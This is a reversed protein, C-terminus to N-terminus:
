PTLSGPSVLNAKVSPAGREKWHPHPWSQLFVPGPCLTGTDVPHPRLHDWTITVPSRPHQCFLLAWAQSDPLPVLPTSWLGSFQASAWDGGRHPQCVYCSGNPGARRGPHLNWAGWEAAKGNSRAETLRKHASSSPFSRRRGPNNRPDLISWKESISLCACLGAALLTPGAKTQGQPWRQTGAGHIRDFSCTFATQTNRLTENSSVLMIRPLRAMVVSGQFYFVSGSGQATFAARPWEPSARWGSCTARQSGWGGIFRTRDQSGLGMPYFEWQASFSVLDQLSDAWHWLSPKFWLWPKFWHNERSGLTEGTRPWKAPSSLM